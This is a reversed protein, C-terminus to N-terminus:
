RSVSRRTRVLEASEGPRVSPMASGSAERASAACAAWNSKSCSRRIDDLASRRFIVPPLCRYRWMKFIGGRLPRSIRRRGEPAGARGTAGRKAPNGGSGGGAAPQFASWRASGCATEECTEFQAGCGGARPRSRVISRRREAACVFRRRVKVGAIWNLIFRASSARESRV